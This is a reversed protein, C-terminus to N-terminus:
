PQEMKWFYDREQSLTKTGGVVGGTISRKEGYLPASDLSKKRRGGGVSPGITSSQGDLEAKVRFLVFPFAISFWYRSPTTSGSARSDLRSPTKLLKKRMKDEM